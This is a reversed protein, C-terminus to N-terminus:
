LEGPEQEGQSQLATLLAAKLASTVSALAPGIDVSVAGSHTHLLVRDGLLGDILERAHLLHGQLGAVEEESATHTLTTLAATIAAM